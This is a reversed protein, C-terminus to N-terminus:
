TLDEALHLGLYRFSQIVEEGHIELSDHKNTKCKRFNIINKKTKKTNLILNNRSCWSVLSQVEEKYATEENNTVLGVM